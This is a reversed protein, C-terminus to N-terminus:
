LVAGWGQTRRRVHGEGVLGPKLDGCVCWLGIWVQSSAPFRGKSEGASRGGGINGQGSCM